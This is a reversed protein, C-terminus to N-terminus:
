AHTVPSEIIGWTCSRAEAAPRTAGGPFIPREDEVAGGRGVLTSVFRSANM